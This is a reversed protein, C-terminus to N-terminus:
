LHSPREKTTTANKDNITSEVDAPDRQNIFGKSAFDKGSM